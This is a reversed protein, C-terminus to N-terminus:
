SDTDEPIAQEDAESHQRTASGVRYARRAAEHLEATDVCRRIRDRDLERYDKAVIKGGDGASDWELVRYVRGTMPSVAIIGEADRHEATM